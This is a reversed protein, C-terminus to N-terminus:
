VDGVQALGKQCIQAINMFFFLPVYMLPGSTKMNRLSIIRTKKKM